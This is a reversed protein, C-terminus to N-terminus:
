KIGSILKSATEADYADRAAIDAANEFNMTANERPAHERSKRDATEDYFEAILDIGNEEPTCLFRM